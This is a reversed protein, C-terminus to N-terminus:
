PLLDDFDSLSAARLALRRAGHKPTQQAASLIRQPDPPTPLNALAEARESTSCQACLVTEATPRTITRIPLRYELKNCPRLNTIPTRSSTHLTAEVFLESHSSETGCNLCRHNHEIIVYRQPVTPEALPALCIPPVPLPEPHVAPTPASAHTPRKHHKHKHKM